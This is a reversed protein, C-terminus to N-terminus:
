CGECARGHRSITVGSCRQGALRPTCSRGPLAPCHHPHRTRAGVNLSFFTGTSTRVESDQSEGTVSDLVVSKTMTPRAQARARRSLRPEGAALLAGALASFRPRASPALVGASRQEKVALLLLLAHFAGAFSWSHM